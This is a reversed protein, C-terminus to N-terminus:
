LLSDFKASQTNPHSLGCLALFLLRHSMTTCQSRRCPSPRSFGSGRQVQRCSTTSSSPRTSCSVPKRRCGCPLTACLCAPSWTRPSGSLARASSCPKCRPSWHSWRLFCISSPAPAPNLSRTIEDHIAYFFTIEQTPVVPDVCNALFM